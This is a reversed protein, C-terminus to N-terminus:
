QLCLSKGKEGPPFLKSCYKEAIYVLIAGSEFIPFGDDVFTPTRGNPNIALYWPQKQENKSIDVLKVLYSIQAEELAAAVKWTNPTDAGYLIRPTQSSPPVSHLLTANATLSLKAM